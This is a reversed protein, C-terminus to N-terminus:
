FERSKKSLYRIRSRHAFYCSSARRRCTRSWSRVQRRGSLTISNPKLEDSLALGLKVLRVM